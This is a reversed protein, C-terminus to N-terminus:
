LAMKLLPLISKIISALEQQQTTHNASDIVIKELEFDNVIEDLENQTMKGEKVANVCIAFQAAIDRLRADTTKFSALRMTEDLLTM